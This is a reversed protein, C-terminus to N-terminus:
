SATEGQESLPATKAHARNALLAALAARRQPTLATAGGRAVAPGTRGPAAPTLGALHRELAGEDLSAVFAAAAEASRVAIEQHHAPDDLLRDLAALWPGADQDPVVPVPRAHAGAEYGTIRRVPLLYPVGLKAESLGGVDAALVPVGRLMGEVATYGFTEDWLSPMVLVRSRALVEGIDDVPDMLEINPRARLAALDDPTAGWTPVALFRVGPRADALALFIPLGKYACPNVMTVATGTGGTSPTIGGYVQPHILAADVGGHRELHDRAARSVAVVGAAAKVLRTGAASPYFAGPGFPLQQLTHALYVVRGPAARSAAGLMILGPDDSPVLVWDPSLEECVTGVRRALHSPNVVAHAVVGRYEYTVEDGDFRHVRAGAKQLYALHADLSTRRLAGSLPAVVRCQHGRAALQELMIRNSKNAGGHTPLHFMNQALLIRM